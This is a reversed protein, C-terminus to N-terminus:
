AHFSHSFLSAEWGMCALAGEQVPKIIDTPQGNM